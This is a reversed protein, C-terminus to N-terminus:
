SESGFKQLEAILWDPPPSLLVPVQRVVLRVGGLVLVAGWAPVAALSEVGKRLERGVPLAQGAPWSWVMASLQRPQPPRGAAMAAQGAQGRLSGTWSQVIPRHPPLDEVMWLKAHVTARPEDPKPQPEDDWDGGRGGPPVGMETIPDLAAMLREIRSPQHVTAIKKFWDAGEGPYCLLGFRDGQDGCPIAPWCTAYPSGPEWWSAIEDPDRTPQTLLVGSEAIPAIVTAGANLLGFAAAAQPSIAAVARLRAETDVATAVDTATRLTQIAMAEMEVRRALDAIAVGDYRGPLAERAAHEAKQQAIIAERDIM